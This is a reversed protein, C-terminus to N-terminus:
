RGGDGRRRRCTDRMSLFLLGCDRGCRAARRPRYRCGRGRKLAFFATRLMASNLHHFLATFREKRRQKAAQRVREPAQSVSDQDQARRTGDDAEARKGSASWDRVGGQDAVSVERNGFLSHRCM